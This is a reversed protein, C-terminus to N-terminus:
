KSAASFFFRKKPLTELAPTKASYYEALEEIDDKTLTATMGTMIPNKRGGLKYDHLARAIYDKHQGSITPYDATIGVGNTGHCALCTETAKPRQNAPVDNTSKTLVDPGAFYVAIDAMDQESLSVAQAHMTGHSREGSKYAKLAAFLYEPRQGHVKPVSYTPYVNKYNPIAHCGQCTYALDHGRKADGVPAQARALPAVLAAAILTLSVVLPIRLAM